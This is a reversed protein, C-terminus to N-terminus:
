NNGRYSKGKYRSDITIYKSKLNLFYDKHPQLSIKIEKKQLDKKNEESFEINTNNEINIKENLVMNNTKNRYLFCIGFDHKFIYDVFM